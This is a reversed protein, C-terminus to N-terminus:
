TIFLLAQDASCYRGLMRLMLLLLVLLQQTTSLWHLGHGLPKSGNRRQKNPEKSNAKSPLAGSWVWCPQGSAVDCIPKQTASPAQWAQFLLTLIAALAALNSRASQRYPAEIKCSCACSVWFKSHLSGGNKKENVPQRSSTGRAISSAAM